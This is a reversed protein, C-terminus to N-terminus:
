PQMDQENEDEIAIATLPEGVLTQLRVLSKGRDAHAREAALEFELLTREADLLELMSIEGTRFAARSAELSEEAKPILSQLYLDSRRIADRHEFVLREISADLDSAQQSREYGAALRRATAERIGADIRGRWIPLNIGFRLLIPDDGSEAIRSNPAEGTVLYDVGVTVDPISAKKAAEALYRQQEIQQELARLDPNSRQARDRLEAISASLSLDPLPHLGPVPANARRHLSSNLEAVYSPRMSRLRELRDEMEGLEVQVRVLEPHSGSGVRYRTRVLDEFSSLLLLNAEAIRTSADLYALDHLAVVVREAVDFRAARYDEWAAAAARGAADERDRLKWPWPLTQQVGVRAQQPGVRTELEDLFFGVGLKPDPLSSVQPVRAKAATWRQRAAKVAPSHELACAVYDGPLSTATLPHESKEALRAPSTSGSLALRDTLGHGDSEHHDLPSACGWLLGILVPMSWRLGYPTM